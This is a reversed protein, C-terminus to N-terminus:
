RAVAAQAVSLSDATRMGSVRSTVALAGRGGVREWRAVREASVDFRQGFLAPGQRVMMEAVRAAAPNGADALDSLAEFAQPWQRTEYAAMASRYRMAPADAAPRSLGMGVSVILTAATLLNAAFTMRRGFRRANM